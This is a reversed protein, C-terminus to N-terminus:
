NGARVQVQTVARPDKRARATRLRIKGVIKSTAVHRIPDPLRSATALFGNCHPTSGNLLCIALPEHEEPM